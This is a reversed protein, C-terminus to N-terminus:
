RLRLFVFALLALIAVAILLRLFTPFSSKEFKVPSDSDYRIIPSQNAADTSNPSALTPANEPALIPASAASAKTFVPTFASGSKTTVSFTRNVDIELGGSNLKDTIQQHVEPPLRDMLRSFIKSEILGEIHHSSDNDSDHAADDHHIIFGGGPKAEVHYHLMVGKSALTDKLMPFQEAVKSAIIEQIKQQVELRTAGEIAPASPDKCTAVFGGGPKPEIRYIFQSLVTKFEM